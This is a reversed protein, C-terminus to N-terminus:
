PARGVPGRVPSTNVAILYDPFRDAGAVDKLAM